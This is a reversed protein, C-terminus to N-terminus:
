LRVIGAERLQNMYNELGTLTSENQNQCDILYKIDLLSHKGNILKAAESVDVIGTVRYKDKIEKSLNNLKQNYGEYGLDRLDIVLSPIIGAARKEENTAIINLKAMGFDDARYGATWRM